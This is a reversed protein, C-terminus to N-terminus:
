EFWRALLAFRLMIILPLSDWANMQVLEGPRTPRYWNWRWVGGYIAASLAVYAYVLLESKLEFVAGLGFPILIAGLSM